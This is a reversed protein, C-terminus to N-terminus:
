EIRQLLYNFGLMGKCDCYPSSLVMYWEYSMSDVTVIDGIRQYMHLEDNWVEFSAEFLFQNYMSNNFVLHIGPKGSSMWNDNTRCDSDINRRRLSNLVLQNVQMGFQLQAPTDNKSDYLGYRILRSPTIPIASFYNQSQFNNKSNDSGYNKKLNIHNDSNYCKKDVGIYTEILYEKVRGYKKWFADKEKSFLKYTEFQADYKSPDFNREFGIIGFSLSYQTQNWKARNLCNSELYKLIFRNKTKCTLPHGLLITGRGHNPWPKTPKSKAGVGFQPRRIEQGMGAGFNWLSDFLSSNQNGKNYIHEYFDPCEHDSRKFHAVYQYSDPTYHHIIECISTPINYNSYVNNALCHCLAHYIKSSSHLFIENKKNGIRKEKKKSVTSQANSNNETM